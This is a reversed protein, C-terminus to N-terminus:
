CVKSSAPMTNAVAAGCGTSEGLALRTSRCHELRPVPIEEDVGSNEAMAEVERWCQELGPAEHRWVVEFASLKAKRRTKAAELPLLAGTSWDYYWFEASSEFDLAQSVYWAPLAQSANEASCFSKRSILDLFGAAQVSKVEARLSSNIRGAGEGLDMRSRIVHSLYAQSDEIRVVRLGYWAAHLFALLTQDM